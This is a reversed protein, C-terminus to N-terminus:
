TDHGVTSRGDPNPRRWDLCLVTADDELHGHCAATVAGTLAKVVERPHQSTTHRILDPLDVREAQREQTGDTYFVLRDGPCLDFHQVRYSTTNPTGFPVDRTLRVEEVQGNRLRLPRPHGANVVQARAGDLSVRLLQGTALGGHGHDLVSRQIQRAQEALDCGARRAGRSSSVLLTALLASRVDHGMADTISLHLTDRDLAYDYTDGGVDDAPALGGALTFQAAECCSASPLLQYQIEAALSVPTTLRQGWQYLDTFRRDTVIIYALAHATQSVQELVDDDASPLTLELMGIVDGRNTVPAVVRQGRGDDRAHVVQQTRVVEEYLSGALPLQDVTGGEVEEGMRVVHRGLVDIFLFSLAVADFRDRLHRAVVDLSAVPAADEAM